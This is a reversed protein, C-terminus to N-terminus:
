SIRPAALRRLIALNKSNKVFIQLVRCGALVGREVALPTGRAISQHAGILLDNATFRNRAV